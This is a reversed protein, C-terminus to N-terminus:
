GLAADGDPNTKHSEQLSSPRWHCWNLEPYTATFDMGLLSSFKFSVAVILVNLVPTRAFDLINFSSPPLSLPPSLLAWYILSAPAPLDHRIMAAKFSDHERELGALSLILTTRELMVVCYTM